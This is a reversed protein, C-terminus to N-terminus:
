RCGLIILAEPIGRARWITGVPRLQIESREEDDSQYPPRINENAIEESQRTRHDQIGNAIENGAEDQLLHANQLLLAEKYNQGSM